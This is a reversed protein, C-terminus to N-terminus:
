SIEKTRDEKRKQTLNKLCSLFDPKILIERRTDVRSKTVDLLEFM